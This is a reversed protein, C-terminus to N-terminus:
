PLHTIVNSKLPFNKMFVCYLCAYLVKLYLKQVISMIDCVHSVGIISVCIMSFKFPM